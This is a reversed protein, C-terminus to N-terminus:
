KRTKCDDGTYGPECGSLCTGNIHFCDNPFLCHGCTNSCDVGCTGTTCAILTLFVYYINVSIHKFSTTKITMSLPRKICKNNFTNPLSAAGVLKGLLIDLSSVNIAVCNKICM